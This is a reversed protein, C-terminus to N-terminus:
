KLRLLGLYVGQVTVKEQPYIMATLEPNSPLLSITGDSNQQYRKLTADSEDIVAVVIEGSRASSRRECIIYDGDCIHDGKMSDGVVQLVYRNEGFLLDSLELVEDSELPEIPQGAAIQGTIPLAFKPKFHDHLRINRRRGPELSLIGRGALEQLVKHITKRSYTLKEACEQETPSYGNLTVYRRIYQLVQHQKDMAIM